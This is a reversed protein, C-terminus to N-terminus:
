NYLSATMVSHNADSATNCNWHFTCILVNLMIYLYLVDSMCSLWIFVNLNHVNLLYAFPCPMYFVSCSIFGYLYCNKFSKLAAYFCVIVLFFMFIPQTLVYIFSTVFTMFHPIFRQTDRDALFVCCCVCIYYLLISYVIFSMYVYLLCFMLYFLNLYLHFPTYHLFSFTL